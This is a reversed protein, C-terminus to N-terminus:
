RGLHSGVSWWLPLALGFGAPPVQLVKPRVGAATLEAILRFSSARGFAGSVDACCLAVRRGDAFVM